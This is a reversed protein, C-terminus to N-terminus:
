DNFDLQLGANKRRRLCHSQGGYFVATAFRRPPRSKVTQSLIPSAAAADNPWVSSTLTPPIGRWPAREAAAPLAQQREGHM